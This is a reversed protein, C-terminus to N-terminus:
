IGKVKRGGPAGLTKDPVSEGPIQIDEAPGMQNPLGREDRTAQEILGEMKQGQSEPGQDKEFQDQKDFKGLKHMVALAMWVDAQKPTPTDVLASTPDSIPVKPM